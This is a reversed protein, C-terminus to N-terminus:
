ETHVAGVMLGHCLNGRGHPHSRGAAISDDFPQLQLRIGHMTQRKQQAHLKVRLAQRRAMGLVAREELCENLDTRQTALM